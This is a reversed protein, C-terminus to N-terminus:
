YGTVVMSVNSFSCTNGVGGARNDLNFTTSGAASVSVLFTGGIQGVVAGNTLGSTGLLNVSNGDNAAHSPYDFALYCATTNSSSAMQGVISVLAKKNATV